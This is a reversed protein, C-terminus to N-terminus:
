TLALDEIWSAYCRVMADTTVRLMSLFRALETETRVYQALTKMTSEWHGDDGGDFEIHSSYFRTVRQPDPVGWRRVNAHLDDMFRQDLHGSIGEAALPAALLLVPDEHFGIASEQAAMFQRTALNPSMRDLVFAVDEGLAKLDREIILEHNVEEQLHRIFHVRLRPDHAHAVCRGLIRTTFRVFQHMNSLTYVYQGRSLTNDAVARFWPSAWIRDFFRQMHAGVERVLFEPAIPGDTAAYAGALAVDLRQARHRFSGRGVVDVLELGAIARLSLARALPTADDDVVTAGVEHRGAIRARQLAAYVALAQAPEGRCDRARAVDTLWAASAVRSPPLGTRAAIADPDLEVGATALVVGRADVVGLLTSPPPGGHTQAVPCADPAPSSLERIDLEATIPVSTPTAM